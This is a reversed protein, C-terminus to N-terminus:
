CTIDTEVVTNGIPTTSMVLNDIPSSEVITNGIPTTSLLPCPLYVVPAPGGGAGGFGRLLLAKGLGFARGLFGGSM